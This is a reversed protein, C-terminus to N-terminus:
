NFRYLATTNDTFIVTFVITQGEIMRSGVSFSKVRKEQLIDGTAIIKQLRGDLSGFLGMPDEDMPDTPTLKAVFVVNGNVSNGNSIGLQSFTNDSDRTIPKFTTLTGPAPQGAKAITILNTRTSSDTNRFLYVGEQQNIGKGLFVNTNRGGGITKPTALLKVKGPSLEYGFSTFTGEGEPILTNRDALTVPPNNRSVDYNVIAGGWVPNGQLDRLLPVTTVIEFGGMDPYAGNGPPLQRITSPSNPNSSETLLYTQFLSSTAMRPGSLTGSAPLGRSSYLEVVENSGTIRQGSQLSPSLKPTPSSTDLISYTTPGSGSFVIRRCGDGIGSPQANQIGLPGYHNVEYLKKLRFGNYRYLINVSQTQGNSLKQRGELTFNIEGCRISPDYIRFNPELNQFSERFNPNLSGSDILETYRSSQAQAPAVLTLVIALASFALRIPQQNLMIEGPTPESTNGRDPSNYSISTPAITYFEAQNHVTKPLKLNLSQAISRGLEDIVWAAMGVGM